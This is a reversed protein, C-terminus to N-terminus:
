FTPLSTGALVFGTLDYEPAWQVIDDRKERTSLSPFWLWVRYEIPISQDTTQATPPPRRSKRGTSAAPPQENEPSPILKPGEERLYDIIQLIYDTNSSFTASNYRPLSSSLSDYSTRNLWQPQAIHYDAPPPLDSTRLDAVTPLRVSLILPYVAGPSQSSSTSGSKDESRKFILKLTFEIENEWVSPGDNEVGVISGDETTEIWERLAPVFEESQENLSLEGEQSFLSHCLDYAELQAELLSKSLRHAMSAFSQLHLSRYLDLDFFHCRRFNRCFRM